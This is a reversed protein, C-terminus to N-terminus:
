LSTNSVNQVKACKMIAPPVQMMDLRKLKTWSPIAIGKEIQDEILPWCVEVGDVSSQLKGQICILFSKLTNYHDRFVTTQIITPLLRYLNAIHRAHSAEDNKKEADRTLALIATFGKLDGRSALGLSDQHCIQPTSSALLSEGIYRAFEVEQSPHPMPSLHTISPSREDCEFHWVKGERLEMIHYKLYRPLTTPARTTDLLPFIDLDFIELSGPIDIFREASRRSCATEKKWKHQLKSSDGGAYQLRTEIERPSLVSCLYYYWVQSRFLRWNLRTSRTTPKVMKDLTM